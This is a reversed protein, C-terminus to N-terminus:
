MDHRYYYNHDRYVIDFDPGCLLPDLNGRRHTSKYLQCMCLGMTGIYTTLNLKLEGYVM